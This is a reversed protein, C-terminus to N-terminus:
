QSKKMTNSRICMRAKMRSKQAILQDQQPFYHPDHDASKM